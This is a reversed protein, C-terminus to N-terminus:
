PPAPGTSRLAGDRRDLVTIPHTSRHPMRGLQHRQREDGRDHDAGAQHHQRGGPGAFAVRGEHGCHEGGGRGDAHGPQGHDVRGGVPGAEAVHQDGEQGLEAPEADDGRGGQEGQGDRVPEADPGPQQGLGLPAAQAQGVYALHQQSDALGHEGALGDDRQDQGAPEVEV